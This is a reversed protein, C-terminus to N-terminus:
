ILYIDFLSPAIKPLQKIFALIDCVNNENKNISRFRLVIVKFYDREYLKTHALNCMITRQFGCGNFM